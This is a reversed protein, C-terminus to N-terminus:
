IATSSAGAYFCGDERQKAGRMPWVPRQSGQGSAVGGRTRESICSIVTVDHVASVSAAGQLQPGHVSRHSRWPLSLSFDAVAAATLLSM